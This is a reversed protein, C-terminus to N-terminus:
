TPDSPSVWSMYLPYLTAEESAIRDTLLQSVLPWDRQFEELVFKRSYKELFARLAVTITQMNQEYTRAIKAPVELQTQEAARTLAPYLRGDELELHALLEVALVDLEACVASVDGSRTAADIRDVTLAIAEHQLHLTEILSKM